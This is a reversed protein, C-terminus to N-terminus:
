KLFAGAVVVLLCVVTVVGAVIYDKKTMTKIDQGNEEIRAIRATLEEEWQSNNIGKQNDMRMKEKQKGNNKM